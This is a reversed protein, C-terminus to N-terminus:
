RGVLGIAVATVAASFPVFALASAWAFRWLPVARMGALANVAHNGFPVLRAGILFAPHEVPLRRLLGPLRGPAPEGVDAAIRRFLGYELGAGLMWGAWTLPWGLAFGYIAGHALAVVESPFPSVALLAHLPVLVLAAALGWRARVGEPGGLAELAELAIAAAACALLLGRLGPSALLRRVWSPVLPRRPARAAPRPLPASM